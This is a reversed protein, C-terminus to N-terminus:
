GGDVEDGPFSSMAGMVYSAPHAGSSIQVINLCCKEQGALFQVM